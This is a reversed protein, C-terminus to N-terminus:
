RIPSMARLYSLTRALGEVTLLSDKPVENLARNYGAMWERMRGEDEGVLPLLAQYVGVVMVALEWQKSAPRLHREGRAYRGITTESVRIARALQRRGLGLCAASRLLARTVVAASDHTPSHTM